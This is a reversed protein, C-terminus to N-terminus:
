LVMKLLNLNIDGGDKAVAPRIKTNLVDIIKKVTENKRIIKKMKQREKKLWFQIM